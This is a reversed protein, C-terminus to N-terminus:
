RKKKNRKKYAKLDFEIPLNIKIKKPKGKQMGPKWKPMNRVIQLSISDLDPYLSKVVEPDSISGNTEVNFSVYVIGSIKDNLAKESYTINTEIHEKLAKFGGIYEPMEEVIFNEHRPKDSSDIQAFLSVTFFLSSLLLLNIKM